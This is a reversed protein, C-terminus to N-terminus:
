SGSGALKRLDYGNPAKVGQLLSPDAQCKQVCVDCCVFYLRGDHVLAPTSANKLVTKGSEPSVLQTGDPVLAIEERTAACPAKAASVTPSVAPSAATKPGQQEGCGVLAFLCGAALCVLTIRQFRMM